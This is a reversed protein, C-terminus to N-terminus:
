DFALQSAVSLSKKPRSIEILSILSAPVTVSDAQPRTTAHLHTQVVVAIDLEPHGIRAMPVGTNVGARGDVLNAAGLAAGSHLDHPM